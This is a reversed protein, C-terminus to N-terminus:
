ELLGVILGYDDIASALGWIVDLPLRV